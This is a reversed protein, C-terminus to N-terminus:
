NPTKNKSTFINYGLGIGIWPLANYDWSQGIKGSAHDWGTFLGIEFNNYEFMLGAFPTLTSVNTESTVSSNDTTLKSSGVSIGGFLTIYSIGNSSIRRRVGATLGINVNGEFDFYRKKDEGNKGDGPRIKIPITVATSVFSWKPKDGDYIRAYNIIQLETLGFLRNEFDSDDFIKIVYLQGSSDKKIIRFLANKPLEVRIGKSDIQPQDKVFDSIKIDTRGRLSSIAQVEAVELAKTNKTLEYFYGVKIDNQGYGQYQSILIFNIFLFVTIAKKM